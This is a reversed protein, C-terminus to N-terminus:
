IGYPPYHEHAISLEWTEEWSFRYPVNVEECMIRYRWRRKGLLRSLQLQPCATVELACWVVM